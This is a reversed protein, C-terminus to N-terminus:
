AKKLVDLESQNLIFNTETRVLRESNYYSTGMEQALERSTKRIDKGSIISETVIRDMSAKLHQKHKWIRDSYLEGDGAWRLNIQQFDFDKDLYPIRWSSPLKKVASN